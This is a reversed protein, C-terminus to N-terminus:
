WVVPVRQMHHVPWLLSVENTDNVYESHVAQPFLQLMQPLAHTITSLLEGGDAGMTIRLPQTVPHFRVSNLLQGSQSPPCDHHLLLM